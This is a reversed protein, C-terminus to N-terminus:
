SWRNRTSLLMRFATSSPPHTFSRWSGDCKRQQPEGQAQDLTRRTQNTSGSSFPQVNYDNPIGLRPRHTGTRRRLGMKFFVSEPQSRLLPTLICMSEMCDSVYVQMRLVELGSLGKFFLHAARKEHYRLGPRLLRPERVRACRRSRCGRTRSRTPFTNPNTLQQDKGTQGSSKCNSSCM